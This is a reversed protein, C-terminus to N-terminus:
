RLRLVPRIANLSAIIASGNSLLASVAPSILGTPIALLLALSNLGAIIAYNQRINRMADRSIQISSVLKWLNDEMLVVHATERAVDAGHRMSVGVDAYALAPSDNIGDGVMAVAAGSQQFCRVIEAKDAPLTEAHVVDIGIQRAVAKAVPASDGTIMVINRIGFGRLASVVAPSEDRIADAYPILGKVQGDVAFALTSWGAQSMQRIFRSHANLRIGSASLFRENGIHVFYGNIRSEVGLGVKFESWVREPIVLGEAQAKAVIAESVPHKLRMEAAAALALIKSSPFRREDFSLIDRIEPRGHTLTGTKDFVVTDLEALREMHAGSKILIGKRAAHAMAALIATPAAVRIGTGYDVILMSLLRDVNRTMAFLSGTLLLAPAVLRDGLREAHNQVRTEGSPAADLLRIIQAAITDDGVRTAELVLNGERVVTSAFVDEGKSKDIPLSEGTVVKQDVTAQGDVIRGDVPIMEGPYVVVQQGAIVQRSPVRTIENGNVVWAFVTQFELLSSIARKSRAATRDRIWDGLAIMWTIFAATIWGGNLTSVTIALTDLFDVNLRRQTFAVTAARYVSPLAAAAIFPASLATLTSRGFLSLVAGTTALALGSLRWVWGLPGSVTRVTAPEAEATVVTTVRLMTLVPQLADAEIVVAECWLNIRFRVGSAEALTKRVWECRSGDARLGPIRLRVRGSTQHVIDFEM